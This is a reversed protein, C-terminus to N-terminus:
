VFRSIFDPRSFRAIGVVGNLIEKVIALKGASLTDCEAREKKAMVAYIGISVHSEIANCTINACFAPSNTKM